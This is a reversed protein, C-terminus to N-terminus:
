ERVLTKDIFKYGKYGVGLIVFGLFLMFLYIPIPIRINTYNLQYFTLLILYIALVMVFLWRIKLNIM